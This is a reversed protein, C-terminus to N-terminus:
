AKAKYLLTRARQPAFITKAVKEVEEKTVAEIEASERNVIETDGLLTAYALNTARNLLEIEGYVLVSELQNKAKQHEEETIGEALLKNIELDILKEAEALDHGENLRGQIILMGADMSGAHYSSLNSFVPNDKVLSQYLRSSKGSGFVESLIELPFYDPHMRPVTLCARYIADQPVDAEIEERKAQTPEPEQPINREPVKGSAIPAFYKDCLAKVQEYTVKGGVVLVCNNPLYRSFFFSKVDDMTAAEVHSIDKGITAWRYSHKDYVLPRIKLWVDGYPQNLYRQNFEEIVVKQQVELVKPDFSLSLMRDSELWFATEINEAPLTIYYNTVDPSTWANNEGGVRQLVEDYSEIHKSGGFMLHEFLHAFGTKDESEDRSGVNYLLNVVAQSTNQDEHVIVKLGNDLTFSKYEIM